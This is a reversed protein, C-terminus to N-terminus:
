SKAISARLIAVLGAADTPVPDSEIRLGFNARVEAAISDFDTEPVGYELVNKRMGIRAIFGEIADNAPKFDRHAIKAESHAYELGDCIQRVWDEIQEVDFCLKPEESRLNSLTDGDVYEMSIGAVDKEDHFDHIRVINHRTLSRSRRTERKLEELATKDAVLIEPLFKLAVVEELKIDHALWVVGMGGRGIERELRFRGFLQQGPAIGRANVRGGITPDFDLDDYASM